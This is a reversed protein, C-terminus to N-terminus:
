RVAQWDTGLARRFNAAHFEPAATGIREYVQSANHPVDPVIIKQYPISLSDLHRMWDLNAEYNFDKTGVVVLISLGNKKKAYGAALDYTNHHVPFRYGPEGDELGGHDRIHKEHQHGGGMPAASVFLEPYKFMLRATGRGGQSFGELGRGERRGITRYTADIHPILEGIFATEGYSQFSPYDYHSVAGGNSFVYIMGPAKGDRMARDAFKAIGISKTEGGPRGGHLYYVVPYRRSSGEYDPPLYICYGIDTGHKRSRFTGHRVGAPANKPMPNIWSFNAPPAEAFVAGASAAILFHRRDLTHKM